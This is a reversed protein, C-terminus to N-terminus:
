AVATLGIIPFDIDTDALRNVYNTMINLVVNTVIEIIIGDDDCVERIEAIDADSVDGRSRLVELAFKVIVDDSPAIAGGEQALKIADDTLGQSEGIAAHASLCYGCENEQAIAIAIMEKQKGTLIGNNLAETLSLYGNLAAPSHAFTTFLNPLMGLKTKVANLTKATNADASEPSVPKIRPM